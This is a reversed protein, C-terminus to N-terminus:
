TFLRKIEELLSTIEDELAKIQEPEVELWVDEQTVPNTVRVKGDVILSYRLLLTRLRTFLDEIKEITEKTIL